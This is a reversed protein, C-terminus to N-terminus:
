IALATPEVLDLGHGHQLGLRATNALLVPGYAWASHGLHLGAADPSCCALQLKSLAKAQQVPQACLSLREPCASCTGQARILRGRAAGSGCLALDNTDPVASLASPMDTCTEAVRRSEEFAMLENAAWTRITYPRALTQWRKGREGFLLQEV